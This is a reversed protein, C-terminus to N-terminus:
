VKGPANLGSIDYNIERVRDGYRLLANDGITKFPMPYAHYGYCKFLQMFRVEQGKIEAFWDIAGLTDSYLKISYIFNDALDNEKGINMYHSISLDPNGVMLEIVKTDLSISEQGKRVGAKALGLTYYDLTNEPNYLLIYGSESPQTESLEKLVGKTVYLIREDSVPKITEM